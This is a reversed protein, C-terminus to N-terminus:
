KPIHPKKKTLNTLNIAEPDIISYALHKRSITKYSEQIDLWLNKLHVDSGSERGIFGLQTEPIVFRVIGNEHHYELWRM